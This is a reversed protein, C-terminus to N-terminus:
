PLANTSTRAGDSRVVVCTAEPANAWTAPSAPYADIRYGPLLDPNFLEHACTLAISKRAHSNAPYPSGIPLQIVHPLLQADHPRSCATVEYTPPTGRYCPLYAAAQPGRLAGAMVGPAAPTSALGYVVACQVWRAGAAWEEQTPLYAASRAYLAPLSGDDGLYATVTGSGCVQNLAEAVPGGVDTAESETPYPSSESLADTAVWVTEMDHPSACQRRAPPHNPLDGKPTVAQWCSGLAPPAGLPAPPRSPRGAASTGCASLIALLGVLVAASARADRRPVTGRM